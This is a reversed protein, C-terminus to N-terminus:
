DPLDVMAMGIIHECGARIAELAAAPPAAALGIRAVATQQDRLIVNEMEEVNIGADGIYALVHALVGPRNYHRVLLMRRAATRPLLNVCNEVVGTECFLRVLRVTEAAIASQAQDTSAAVHPTGYVVGPLSWSAAAPISSLRAPACRTL